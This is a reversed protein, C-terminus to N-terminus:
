VGEPPSWLFSLSSTTNTKVALDTIAAPGQATSGGSTTLVLVQYKKGPTLGDFRHSTCRAPQSTNTVLGGRSDLVQLLYGDAMGLAKQWSVLLSCTTHLNEVQVGTVATRGSTTSNNVLEGSVSQVTVDYVQGPQLSGFTVENLHKLVRRVDLQRSQRFLFVSFGDVDGQGPTWSVKLSSSDGHNSVHINKVRFQYTEAGCDTRGEIFQAEPQPWQLNVGSDQLPTWPTLSSLVCEGVSSGLTIPPFVKMDNFLLQVEYHDVDGLAASWVVRLDETGQGALVLSQVAAPFTQRPHLRPKM